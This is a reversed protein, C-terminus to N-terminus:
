LKGVGQAPHYIGTDTGPVASWFQDMDPQLGLLGSRQTNEPAAM